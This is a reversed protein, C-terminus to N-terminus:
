EILLKCYEIQQSIKLLFGSFINFINWQLKFLGISNPPWLHLFQNWPIEHFTLFFFFFFVNLSQWIQFPAMVYSTKLLVNYIQKLSEELFVHFVWLEKEGCPGEGRLWLKTNGLPPVQWGSSLVSSSGRCRWLILTHRITTAHLTLRFCHRFKQVQWRAKRGQLHM